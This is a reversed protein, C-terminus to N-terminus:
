LVIDVNNMNRNSRKTHDHGTKGQIIHIYTCYTSNINREVAQISYCKNKIGSLYIIVAVLKPSCKMMNKSNM